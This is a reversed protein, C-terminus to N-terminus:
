AWHGIVPTPWTTDPDLALWGYRLVYARLGFYVTIRPEGDPERQFSIYTQLGYAESVPVVATPGIAALASTARRYAAADVDHYELLRAIRDMAAEDTGCHAPVPVDLKVRSPLSVVQAGGPVFSLVVYAVRRLQGGECVVALTRDIDVAAREGVLAGIRRLVDPAASRMYLKVRASPERELELCLHM